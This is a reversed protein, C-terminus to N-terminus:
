PLSLSGQGAGIRPCSRPKSMSPLLDWHGSGLDWQGSGLDWQDSGLGAGPRGGGSSSAAPIKNCLSNGAGPVPLASFDWLSLSPHVGPAPHGLSVLIQSSCSGWSLNPAGWSLNLAGWTGKIWGHSGFGHLQLELQVSFPIGRFLGM